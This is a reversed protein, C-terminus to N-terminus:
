LVELYRQTNSKKKRPENSMEPFDRAYTELIEYRNDPFRKSAYIKGNQDIVDYNIHLDDIKELVTERWYVPFGTKIVHIGFLKYGLYKNLIFADNNSVGYFYGERKIIMVGNPDIYDRM